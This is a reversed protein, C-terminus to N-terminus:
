IRDRRDRVFPKCHGASGMLKDLLSFDQTVVLLKIDAGMEIGEKRLVEKPVIVAASSGLPRVKSVFAM